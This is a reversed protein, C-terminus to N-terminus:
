VGITSLRISFSISVPITYPGRLVGLWSAGCGQVKLGPIVTKGQLHSVKARSFKSFPDCTINHFNAVLNGFMIALHGPM